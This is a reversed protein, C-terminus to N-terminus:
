LPGDWMGVIPGGTKSGVVSLVVLVLLAYGRKSRLTAFTSAV